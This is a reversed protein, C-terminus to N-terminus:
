AICIDREVIFDQFNNEFFFVAFRERVSAPSFGLVCERECLAGTAKIREPGLSEVEAVVVEDLVVVEVKGEDRAVAAVDVVGRFSSLSFFPAVEGREGILKM